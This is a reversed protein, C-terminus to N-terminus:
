RRGAHGCHHTLQGSPPQEGAAHQKVQTENGEGRRDRDADAHEKVHDGPLRPKAAEGPTRKADRGGQDPGKQQQQQGLM